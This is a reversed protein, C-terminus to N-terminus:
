LTRSGLSTRIRRACVDLHGVKQFAEAVAETVPFVASSGDAKVRGSNPDKKVSAEPQQAGTPVSEKKCGILALVAVSGVLNNSAHIKGGM